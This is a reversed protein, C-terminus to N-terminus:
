LELERIKRFKHHRNNKRQRGSCIDREKNCTKQNLKKVICLQRKQTAKHLHESDYIQKLKKAAMTRFPNQLKIDLLKIARETEVLLNNWYTKLPKEISYPVGYHLLDKEEKSLKINTLNKIRPYFRSTITIEHKIIINKNKKYPM